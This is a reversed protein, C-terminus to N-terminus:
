CEVIEEHRLTPAVITRFEIEIGVFLGQHTSIQRSQVARRTPGVTPHQHCSETVLQGTKLVVRQLEGTIDEVMVALREVRPIGVSAQVGEVQGHLVVLRKKRPQAQMSFSIVRQEM